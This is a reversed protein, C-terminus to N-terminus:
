NVLTNQASELGAKLADDDLLGHMYADGILLEAESSQRDEFSVRPTYNVGNRPFGSLEEFEVMGVFCLNYLLNEAEPSLANVNFDVLDERHLARALADVYRAVFEKGINEFLAPDHQVKM